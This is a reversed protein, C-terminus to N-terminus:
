VAAASVSDRAVCDRSPEEPYRVERTRVIREVAQRVVGRVAAVVLQEPTQAERASGPSSDNGGPMSGEGLPASGNAQAAKQLESPVGNSLTAPEDAVQSRAPSREPDRKHPLTQDRSGNAEALSNENNLRQPTSAIQPKSVTKMAHEHPSSKTTGAPLNKTALSMDPNYIVMLSLLPPLAAMSAERVWSGVDGRRLM